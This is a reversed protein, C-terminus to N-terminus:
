RNAKIENFGIKTTTHKIINKNLTVNIANICKTQAIKNTKNTM